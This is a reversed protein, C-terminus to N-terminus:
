SYFRKNTLEISPDRAYVNSSLIHAVERCGCSCIIKGICGKCEPTNIEDKAFANWYDWDEIIGSRFINGVIRPSHNCTRVEGSPGVVFFGTAAACKYGIHLYKYKAPNDISCLPIETGINGYRKALSLVFEADELTQNLEKTTITLDNMYSLGRGGPLFRNLLIDNAGYLLASAITDKLEHLNLKTVTINATTKMGLLKARNFWNLVGNVNEVGTHQSFTALGPLSISLHVHQEKFFELWDDSLNLGNSILTIETYIRHETLSERIFRIIEKADDKLIAEGGSISFLEVGCDLLIKIAKKWEELNLERGKHYFSIRSEWPCSCFLCRHNCKYTLELVVNKPFTM